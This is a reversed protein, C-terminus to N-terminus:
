KLAKSIEELDTKITDRVDYIGDNDSDPDFPCGGNTRAYEYPCNDNIDPYGDNDSDRIPAPPKPPPSPTTPKPPPSSPTPAPRQCQPDNDSNPKIGCHKPVWYDVKKCQWPEDSIKLYNHPKTYSCPEGVGRAEAFNTDLTFGLTFITLFSFFMLSFSLFKM